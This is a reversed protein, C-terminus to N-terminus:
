LGTGVEVDESEIKYGANKAEQEILAAFDCDVYGNGILAQVCERAAAAVPMPVGLERAAALGLDMDKRLLVPTFTPTFDLNVYAPTKYASFTSGMVSSNLFELFAHRPVGGKEALVTIEAMSQAVIGLIVNHCIKVMRAKEGDGVYSVSKGIAELYPKARDFAHKDGSAVISLAGAEVAKDNGSVPSDLMATGRAKAIARVNRSANESITTLDVMIGPNPGGEALLGGDGTTVETFNADNALITFVIDMGALDRPANVITAGLEALPQAKEKTRNWVSLKVGAEVLRRAMASGMRGTGIWGVRAKNLDTDAM